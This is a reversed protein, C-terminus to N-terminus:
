GSTPSPSSTKPSVRPRLRAFVPAWPLQLLKTMLSSRAGGPRPARLAITEARLFRNGQFALGTALASLDPVPASSGTRDLIQRLVNAPDDLFDEHRLFMRRRPPHRLFVFVSVLHTLWLYANAVLTGMSFSTPDAADLSAVVGQPDRVLYVLYLEIGDLTQLERARLPYHSTDVIHSAASVDAIAVYLEEAVRRYRQRLRRRIFWARPDLLASSRELAMHERGFLDTPDDDLHELVRAWFSARQEGKRPSIGSRSFWRELEGVFFHNTCNGLAVGLVTSGSRGAGMIYVVKPKETSRATASGTSPAASALIAEDV